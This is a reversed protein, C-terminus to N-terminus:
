RRAIAPVYFSLKPKVNQAKQWDDMKQQTMRKPTVRVHMGNPLAAYIRDTTRIYYSAINM